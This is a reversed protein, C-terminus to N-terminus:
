NYGLNNWLARVLRIESYSYEEGLYEKIPTLSGAGITKIAQLIVKKIIIL